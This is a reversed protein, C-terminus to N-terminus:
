YLPSSSRLHVDTYIKTTIFLLNHLPVEFWTQLFVNQLFDGPQNTAKSHDPRVIPTLLIGFEQRFGVLVEGFTSPIWTLAEFLIEQFNVLPVTLGM